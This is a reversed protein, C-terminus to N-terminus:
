AGAAVLSPRQSGQIVARARRHFNRYDAVSWGACAPPRAFSWADAHAILPLLDSFAARCTPACPLVSYPSMLLLNRNRVASKSAAIDFQRQWSDRQAGNLRSAAAGAASLAPLPGCHRARVGSAAHLQERISRMTDGLRRLCDIGAPDDGRLIVLDGLGAVLFALRRNERADRRQQPSAWHLCDFLEDALAVADRLAHQLRREDLNGDRDAFGPLSLRLPLWASQLPSLLGCCPLPSLAVQEALLACSSRVLGGYVPLLPNRALRRRWLLNWNSDTIAQVAPNCHSEMQLSDLFVYRPGAGLKTDAVDQFIDLPLLHSPVCLGISGTPLKSGCFGRRLYECFRQWAAAASSPDVEDPLTFSDHAHLDCPSLCVAVNRKLMGGLVALFRRSYDGGRLAEVVSVRMAIGSSPASEDHLLPEVGLRRLEHQLTVATRRARQRPTRSAAIDAM